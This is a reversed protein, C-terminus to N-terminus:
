PLDMRWVGRNFTSLLLVEGPAAKLKALDSGLFGKPLGMSINFWEDENPGLRYVAGDGTAYVNRNDAYIAQLRPGFSTAPDALNLTIEQWAISQTRFIRSEYIGDAGPKQRAALVWVNGGPQM